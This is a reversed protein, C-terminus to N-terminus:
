CQESGANSLRATMARAVLHRGTHRAIAVALVRKAGSRHPKNIDIRTRVAASPSGGRPLLVDVSCATARQGSLVRGVCTLTCARM